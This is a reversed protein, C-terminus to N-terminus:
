GRFVEVVFVLGGSEAVGVGVSSFAGNLIADRHKASRMFGVHTDDVTRAYGVNEGLVQWGGSIGDTLRSHELTRTAALREAWAQAKDAANDDWALGPLGRNARESNILAHARSGLEKPTCGTSVLGIVCVALLALVRFSSRRRSVETM